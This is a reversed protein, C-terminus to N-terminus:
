SEIGERALVALAHAPACRSLAPGLEASLSIVDGALNMREIVRRALFEGAGSLIISEPSQGLRAVVQGVAAAIRATQHHRIAEAAALADAGEFMTVDACIMRALRAHSAVRTAPRGDATNRNDPEEPVESLTLYADWTTAFLEQAVPCLQQRYPLYGAVSCVPSREIGTYVLEGSLLRETDGYGVTQPRGNVLPIVDTTTSGIDILLATGSKAYRGAFRALAHWNAAAALLPQRLASELPELRGSTQYVLVSKGDAATSMAQLIHAVGEEKSDFCDALEGTMTAAIYGCVPASAIVKRLVEALRLPERWLPFAQIACYGLGDAAKLNAGGIDLALWNMLHPTRFESHQISRYLWQESANRGGCHGM